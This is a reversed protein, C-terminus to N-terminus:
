RPAGLVADISETLVLTRSGIKRVQLQGENILQYVKSRSIWLCKATELISLTRPPVGNNQQSRHQTRASVAEVIRDFMPGVMANGNDAKTSSHPISPLWKILKDPDLRRWRLIGPEVEVPYVRKTDVLRNFQAREISLYRCAAEDTLMALWGEIHLQM